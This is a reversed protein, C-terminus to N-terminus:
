MQIYVIFMCKIGEKYLITFMRKAIYSNLYLYMHYVYISTLNCLKLLIIYVKDVTSADTISECLHQKYCSNINYELTFFGASINSYSRIRALVLSDLTQRPISHGHLLLSLAYKPWFSNNVSGQKGVNFM